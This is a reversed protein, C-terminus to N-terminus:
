SATVTMVLDHCSDVTNDIPTIVILADGAPIHDGERSGFFVGNANDTGIAYGEGSRGDPLFVTYRVNANRATALAYLSVRLNSTNEPITFKFYTPRNSGAAFCISRWNITYLPLSPTNPDIALGNCTGSCAYGSSCSGSAATCDNFTSCPALKCLMTLPPARTNVIRTWARSYLNKATDRTQSLFASAALITLGGILAFIIFYELSAQAKKTPSEGHANM